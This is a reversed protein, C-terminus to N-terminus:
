YRSISGSIERGDESLTWSNDYLRFVALLKGTRNDHWSINGESDLCLFFNDTGLLKVPLGETREFFLANTGAYIAAGEVSSIALSPGSEAISIRADESPYEYLKVSASTRMGAAAYFVLVTTKAGDFGQEVSVAYISGSKGTYSLLGAQANHLFPVTEGTNVNVYLFPSNGSVVSRSLLFNENNIFAADIAGISSFTFNSREGPNDANYLYLNGATDLVLIKENKSSISRIPYRNPLNLSVGDVTYYSNVFQPLFQTNSSQWLIFRDWGQSLPTIRSYGNKFQLRINGRDQIQRYDLPIFCLENKETIFAISRDTHAIETIRAQFSFALSSARNLRDLLLLNGDTSAFAAGENCAFSAIRYAGLSLSVRQDTVLNGRDNISFRYLIPNYGNQSFCYFGDGDPYLLATREINSMRSYVTGSAADVIVLGGANIGALFRNNGFMVPSSLNGPAQFSNTIYRSDMDFYFILGSYDSPLFYDHEPRYALINREARGTIALTVSGTPVVTTSVDGTSPDLLVLSSGRFGSAIIYKGGASYNVYTVPEKSYLSFVKAKDKYDWVSVWYGDMGASEVICVQETQPHKAIGSITHPTLQIRQVAARESVNWVVICGDEGASIIEEGNHIIATIGGIHGGAINLASAPMAFFILFAALIGLVTKKM